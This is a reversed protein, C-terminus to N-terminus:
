RMELIEVKDGVRVTGGPQDAILNQGFMVKGNTNRYKSLTKLPEPGLAIGTAQDITTVVCRPCPKVLHFITTGIRIKKWRDEEFPEADDVVLNPRFRDMAVPDALRSNLDDLSSQGILLFPYGDAFSVTDRFKRVAYHPSVKRVSRQTMGVLRCKTSLVDSFWRNIEDSYVAAKLSSGWVNVGEHLEDGTAFPITLSRSGASVVLNDGRVAVWIRAMQPFERQTLFDGADDVLMWRRDHRLGQDEVMGEGLNIGKLSKIPYIIIESLQM